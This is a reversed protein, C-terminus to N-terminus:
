EPRARIGLRARVDDVNSASYQITVAQGARVSTPSSTFGLNSSQAAVFAAFSAAGIAVSNVFRM